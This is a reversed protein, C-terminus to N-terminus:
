LTGKKTIADPPFLGKHEKARATARIAKKEDRSLPRESKKVSLSARQSIWDMTRAGEFTTTIVIIIFVGAYLGGPIYYFVISFFLLVM